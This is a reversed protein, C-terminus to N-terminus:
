NPFHIHLRTLAEPDLFLNLFYFVGKVLSFAETSMLEDTLVMSTLLKNSHACCYQM